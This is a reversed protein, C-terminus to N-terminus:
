YGFIQYFGGISAGIAIHSGVALSCAMFPSPTKIGLFGKGLVPMFFFWPIIVSILGFIIGNMLSAGCIEYKLLIFFFVSYLIAVSYHVIWGIMLENKIPVEEDITPNYIKGRFVVLVFWRGVVGWDSPNIDYLLKLLRQWMDMALCSVIGIIVIHFIEM